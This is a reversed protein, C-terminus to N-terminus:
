PTNSFVRQNVTIVSTSTLIKVQNHPFSWNLTTSVDTVFLLGEWSLGISYEGSLKTGLCACLHVILPTQRCTAKTRFGELIIPFGVVQFCCHFRSFLKSPANIQGFLLSVEHIVVWAFYRIIVSVVKGSYLTECRHRVTHGWEQFKLDNGGAGNIHADERTLFRWANFFNCFPNRRKCPLKTFVVCSVIPKVRWEGRATSHQGRSVCFKLNRKLM